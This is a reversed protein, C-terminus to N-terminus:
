RTVARALADEGRRLSPAPLIPQPRCAPSSILAERARV